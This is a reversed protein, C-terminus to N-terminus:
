HKEYLMVSTSAYKLDMNVEAKSVIQVWSILFFLILRAENLVKYQGLKTVSHCHDLLLLVKQFKSVIACTWLVMFPSTQKLLMIVIILRHMKNVATLSIHIGNIWSFHLAELKELSVTAKQPTLQLRCSHSISSNSFYLLIFLGMNHWSIFLFRSVQVVDSIKDCESVLKHLRKSSTVRLLENDQKEETADHCLVILSFHLLYHCLNCRGESPSLHLYPPILHYLSIQSFWSPRVNHRIPVPSHKM